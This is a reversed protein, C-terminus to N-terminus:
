DVIPMISPAVVVDLRNDIRDVGGEVEVDKQVDRVSVGLEPGLRRAIAKSMIVLFCM